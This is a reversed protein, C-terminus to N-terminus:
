SAKKIDKARVISGGGKGQQMGTERAELFGLANEILKEPTNVVDQLTEANAMALAEVSFIGLIRLNEVEAKTAFPFHRLDLGDIEQETNAAKWAKYLPAVDARKAIDPRKTLDYEVCDFFEHSRNAKIIVFDRDEYVPVGNQAATKTANVVPRSEFTIREM